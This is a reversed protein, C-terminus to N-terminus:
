TTYFRRLCKLPRIQSLPTLTQTAIIILTKSVYAKVTFVMSTGLQGFTLIMILSWTVTAALLSEPHAFDSIAYHYCLHGIFAQDATELLSSLALSNLKSNTFPPPSPVRVPHCP